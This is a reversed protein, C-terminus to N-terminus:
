RPMPDKLIQDVLWTNGKKILKIKKLEKYIKGNRVGTFLFTLSGSNVFDERVKLDGLAADIKVSDFSMNFLRRAANKTTIYKNIEKAFIPTCLATTKKIDKQNYLADFFAIGVSEATDETDSSCSCVALTIFIVIIFQKITNM